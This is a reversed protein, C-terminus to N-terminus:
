GNEGNNRDLNQKGMQFVESPKVIPKTNEKNKVDKWAANVKKIFSQQEKDQTPTLALSNVCYEEFSGKNLYYLMTGFSDALEKSNHTWNIQISVDGSDTIKFILLATPVENEREDKTSQQQLDIQEQIKVLGDLEKGIQERIKQNSKSNGGVIRRLFNM